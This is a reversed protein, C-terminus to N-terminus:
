EYLHRKDIFRTLKIADRRFTNPKVLRVIPQEITKSIAVGNKIEPLTMIADLIKKRVRDTDSETEAVLTIQDKGKKREFTVQYEILEKIDYLVDDFLRVFLNDGAGIPVMDDTRGKIEIKKFPIGCPCDEPIIRGLDRSSYRLLPMGERDFTTFVLEGVEGDELQEGTTPDVVETLYSMGNLHIGHKERCDGGMLLGTETTGYGAYVDANWAEEITKRLSTPTPEAGTLIKKVGLSPLDCMKKLENTLYNIRSTVDMLITPKYEMLLELEEKVSLRGTAITLAGITGYARDLCYRNGWIETGYGVEFSLRVVDHSTIGYMMKMGFASSQVIADLDKQTFYAKKPKGTTGSTTFVKM